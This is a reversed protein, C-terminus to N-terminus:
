LCHSCRQGILLKETSGQNHKSRVGLTLKSARSWGSTSGGMEVSHLYSCGIVELIYNEGIPLEDLITHVCTTNDNNDRFM